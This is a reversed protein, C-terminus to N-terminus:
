RAEAFRREVFRAYQLLGDHQPDWSAPHWSFWRVVQGDLAQVGSNAPEGGAALRLDPAAFFCDPRVNPYVQPISVWVPTSRRNWGNPLAVSPLFLRRGGGAEELGAEPYREQVLALEDALPDIM